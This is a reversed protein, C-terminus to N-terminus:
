SCHVSNRAAEYELLLRKKKICPKYDPDLLTSDEGSSSSSCSSYLLNLDFSSEATGGEETRREEDGGGDSSSQEEYRGSSRGDTARHCRQFSLRGLSVRPQLLKSQLLAAQCPLSLRLARQFGGDSGRTGPSAQLSDVPANQPCSKTSPTIKDGASPASLTEAQCPSTSADRTLHASISPDDSLHPCRPLSAFPPEKVPSTSSSGPDAGEHRVNNPSNSRAKQLLANNGSSQCQPSSLAGDSSGLAEQRQATGTFRNPFSQPLKFSLDTGGVSVIDILQVRPSLVPIQADRSSSPQSKSTDHAPSRSTVQDESGTKEPTRLRGSGDRTPRQQQQQEAPRPILDSPTLDQSSTRSSSPLFLPPSVSAQRLSNDSCEEPCEQLISKVWRQHKSCFQPSRNAEHCEESSGQDSEGDRSVEEAWESTQGAGNTQGAPRSELDKENELLLPSDVLVDRDPEEERGQFQLDARVNLARFFTESSTAPLPSRSLQVGATPRESSEKGLDM